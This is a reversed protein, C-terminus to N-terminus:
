RFISLNCENFILIILLIVDDVRKFFNYSQDFSKFYSINKGQYAFNGGPWMMSGSYRNNGQDENWKQLFPFCGNIDSVIMLIFLYSFLYITFLYQLHTELLQMFHMLKSNIMCTILHCIKAVMKKFM